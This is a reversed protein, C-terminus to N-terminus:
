LGRPVLIGNNRDISFRQGAVMDRSANYIRREASAGLGAVAFDSVM